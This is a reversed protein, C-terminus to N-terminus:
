KKNVGVIGVITYSVDKTSPKILDEVKSNAEQRDKAEVIFRYDIYFRM